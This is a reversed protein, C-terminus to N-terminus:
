AAPSRRGVFRRLEDSLDDGAALLEPLLTRDRLLARFALAITVGHDPRHVVKIDDGARILGGQVVRFYAGSREAETFRRLWGREGMRGRFTACPIRADTVQLVVSEGIQWREGIVANDVEVGITTLNEGFMGNTLDRGLQSEWWDLSERAYAYVAQDSGGHHRREMVQDGVLGSGLGGRKTGPDRVEVPENVPVKGIGSPRPRGPVPVPEAAVNLSLIQAV